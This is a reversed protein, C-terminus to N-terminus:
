LYREKYLIWFASVRAADFEDLGRALSSTAALARNAYVNTDQYAYLLVTPNSKVFSTHADSPTTWLHEKVSATSAGKLKRGTLDYMGLFTCDRIEEMNSPCASKPGALAEISTTFDRWNRLILVMTSPEDINVASDALCRSASVLTDTIYITENEWAVTDCEEFGFSRLEILVQPVLPDYPVPLSSTRLASPGRRFRLQFSPMTSNSKGCCSFM